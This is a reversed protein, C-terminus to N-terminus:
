TFHGASIIQHDLTLEEKAIFHSLEVLRYRVVVELPSSSPLSGVISDGVDPKTLDVKTLFNVGAPFESAKPKESSRVTGYVTKGRAAYIKALEAGLGRSAGIILVGSM